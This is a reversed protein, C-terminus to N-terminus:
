RTGVHTGGEEFSLDVDIATMATVVVLALGEVVDEAEVQFGVGPLLILRNLLGLGRGDATTAVGDKDDVVLHVRITAPVAVRLEGVQDHEIELGALPAIRVNEVTDSTPVM